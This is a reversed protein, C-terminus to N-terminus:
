AEVLEKVRPDDRHDRLWRDFDRAAQQASGDGDDLGSAFAALSRAAHEIDRAGEMRRAQAAVARAEAATAERLQPPVDQGATHLWLAAEILRRRLADPGPAAEASAEGRERRRAWMERLGRIGVAAIAGALLWLPPHLNRAGTSTITGAEWNAEARVRFVGGWRPVTSWDGEVVTSAGPELRVSIPELTWERGTLSEVTLEVDAEIQSMTSNTVDVNANAATPVLELPMALRPDDLVLGTADGGVRVLIAIRFVVQVGGGADPEAIEEAVIAAVGRATRGPPRELTFPVVGSSRPLLSHDTEAVEIWSGVGDRPADFEDVTVNGSGDESADAGYVRFRRVDDTKNTIQVADTVSAGAPLGYSFTRREHGQVVLPHPQFRFTETEGADASAPCFLVIISALLLVLHSARRSGGVLPHTPDVM